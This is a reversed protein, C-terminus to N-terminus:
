AQHAVVDAMQREHEVSGAREHARDDFGAEGGTQGAAVSVRAVGVGRPREDGRLQDGPAGGDGAGHEGGFGGAFPSDPDICANGDAGTLLFNRAEPEVAPFTEPPAPDVGTDTPDGGTLEPAVVTPGNGTETPGAPPRDELVVLNRSSVIWQGAGLGAAAGFSALAALVVAGITLRQPWTRRTRRTPRVIDDDDGDHGDDLEDIDSPDDDTGTDDTGTEGTVAKGPEGVSSAADLSADSGPDAADEPEPTPPEEPM